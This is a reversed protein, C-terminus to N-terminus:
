HVQLLSDKEVRVHGDSVIWVCEYGQRLASASISDITAPATHSHVITDGIERPWEFRTQGWVARGWAFADAPLTCFSSFKQQEEEVTIVYVRDVRHGTQSIAELAMQRAPLSTQWTCYWHHVYTFTTAALYCVFFSQLLSKNTCHHACLGVFLAAMALWAYANMMSMTILLNPSAAILACGLLTVAERSVLVRVQRFLLWFFPLTPLLTLLFLLINRCPAHMLYIYDGPLFTYGLLIAIAKVKKGLDLLSHYEEYYVETLPLSLRVIAYGVALAVGLTLHRLCTKRDVRKFGYALIPPVVAWALGNEKSLAALLVCGLWLVHRWRGRHNLYAWIAILGWMQSYAQNLSDCAMITALTCPSLYFFVTAIAQALRSFRLSGCLRYVMFTSVLHAIFILLHSLLPFWQCGIWSYVYGVLSDFPRWSSGYPLFYQLFAPDYNPSSLTAWDDFTPLILTKGWLIFPASVIIIWLLPHISRLKRM